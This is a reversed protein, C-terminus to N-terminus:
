RGNIYYQEVSRYEFEIITIECWPQLDEYSEQLTLMLQMADDYGYLEAEQVCINAVTTVKVSVVIVDAVYHGDIPDIAHRVRDSGPNTSKFRLPGLNIDRVGERITFRRCGDYLPQFLNNALVLNQQPILSPMFRGEIV